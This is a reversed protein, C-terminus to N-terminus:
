VAVMDVVPWNEVLDGVMLRIREDREEGREWVRVSREECHLFGLFEGEVGRGVKGGGREFGVEELPM